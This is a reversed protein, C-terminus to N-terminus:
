FVHGHHALGDASTLRLRQAQRAVDLLGPAPLCCRTTEGRSNRHRPRLRADGTSGAPLCVGQASWDCRATSCLLTVRGCILRVTGVTGLSTTTTSWENPESSNFIQRTQQERFQRFWRRHDHQSIQVVARRRGSTESRIGCCAGWRRAEELHNSCVTQDLAHRGVQHAGRRSSGGRVAGAAARETRM